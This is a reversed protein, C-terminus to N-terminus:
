ERSFDIELIPARSGDGLPTASERMVLRGDGLDITLDLVYREGGMTIPQSSALTMRDGSRTGSFNTTQNQDHVFLSATVANADTQRVDVSFRGTRNASACRGEVEVQDDNAGPEASIRCRIVEFADDPTSRMVGSGRWDGAFAEALGSAASPAPMASLCVLLCATIFWSRSRMM